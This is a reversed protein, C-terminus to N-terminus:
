KRSRPKGQTSSQAQRQNPTKLGLLSSRKLSCVDRHNSAPRIVERGGKEEEKSERERERERNEVEKWTGEGAIIGIDLGPDGGFRRFRSQMRRQNQREDGSAGSESGCDVAGDGGAQLGKLRLLASSFSRMRSEVVYRASPSGFSFSSMSAM